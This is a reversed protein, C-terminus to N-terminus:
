RLVTWLAVAIRDSLVWIAGTLTLAVAGAALWGTGHFVSRGVVAGIVTPLVYGLGLGTVIWAAGAVLGSPGSGASAAMRIGDGFAWGAFLV